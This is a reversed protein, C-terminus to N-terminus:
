EVGGQIEGALVKFPIFNQLNRDILDTGEVDGFVEEFMEYYLRTRTVFPAKRYETYVAVFRAVDGLADNVRKEAYGEAQNVIKIARGEAKPIEQNYIQKGENILRERDQEAANVDEFAIRVQGEPPLINKLKVSKIILGINYESLFNNLMDTAQSEIRSREITIVDFVNRDGVLLNMVSQSIDRITKEPNEVHFLWAYPDNIRYLVTWQVDVISIDGTLMISENSFDRTSYRTTVGAQETIFGFEEKLERQIPVNFNQEIGFPLKFNMGPNAIRSYEGFLLVVAVEKQDVFFVSSAIAVIIILVISGIIVLLPTIKFPLQFPTVNREVM